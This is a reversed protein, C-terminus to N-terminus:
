NEEILFEHEHEKSGPNAMYGFNEDCLFTHLFIDDLEIFLCLPARVSNKSPTQPPLTIGDKQLVTLHKFIQRNRKSQPIAQPQPSMKIPARKVEEKVFDEVDSENDSDEGDQAEVLVKHLKLQEQFSINPVRVCWKNREEEASFYKFKDRYADTQIKLHYHVM